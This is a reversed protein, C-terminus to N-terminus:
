TGGECVSPAAFQSKVGGCRCEAFQLSAVNGCAILLLFLVAGILLWTFSATLEGCLMERVLTAKATQSRHTDSRFSALRKGLLAIESQAADLTVGARLRTIANIWFSGREGLEANSFGLPM